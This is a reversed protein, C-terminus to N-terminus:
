TPSSSGAAWAGMSCLPTAHLFLAQTRRHVISSLSRAFHSCTLDSSPASTLPTCFSLRETLFVLLTVHRKLTRRSITYNVHM